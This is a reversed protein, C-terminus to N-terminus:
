TRYLPSRESHSQIEQSDIEPPLRGFRDKEPRGYIDSPASGLPSPCCCKGFFPTLREWLSVDDPNPLFVAWDRPPDDLCPLAKSLEVSGQQASPSSLTLTHWDRGHENETEVCRVMEPPCCCEGFFAVIKEWLSVDDFKPWDRHPGRIVPLANSFAPADPATM